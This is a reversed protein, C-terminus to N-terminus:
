QSLGWIINRLPVVSEYVRYRYNRWNNAANEGNVATAGSDQSGDINRMVFTGGAWKPISADPTLPKPTNGDM